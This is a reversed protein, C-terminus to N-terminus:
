KAALSLGFDGAEDTWWRVICDPAVLEAGVSLKALRFQM